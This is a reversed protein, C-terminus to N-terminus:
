DEDVNFGGPKRATTARRNPAPGGRKYPRARIPTPPADAESGGGGGASELRNEALAADEEHLPPAAEPTPGTEGRAARPAGDVSAPATALSVAFIRGDRGLTVSPAEIAAIRWGRIVDGIAFPAPAAGDVALLAGPRDNVSYVGIVEIHPPPADGVPAPGAAAPPPRRTPTFLPREAIAAFRELPPPAFSVRRPAAAIAQEAAAAPAAREPAARRSLMSASDMGLAVCATATALILAMRIM